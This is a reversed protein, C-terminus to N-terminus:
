NLAIKRKPAVAQVPRCVRKGHKYFVLYKENAGPQQQLQKQQQSDALGSQGLGVVQTGEANAVAAIPLLQENKEAAAGVWFGPCSDRVVFSLAEVFLLDAPPRHLLLM